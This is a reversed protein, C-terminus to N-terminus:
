RQPREKAQQEDPQVMGTSGAISRRIAVAARV